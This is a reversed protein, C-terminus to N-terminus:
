VYLTSPTLNWWDAAMDRTVGRMNTYRTYLLHTDRHGMNLQLQALTGCKAKLYYTAYSHRLCDNQWTKGHWGAAKRLLNLRRVLNRPPTILADPAAEAPRYADLWALLTPHLDIHRTGGTKSNHARVSLVNEEMDLDNWKLRSCELPRVGAFACIALYPVLDAANEAATRLLRRLDAPPLATIERERVHQQELPSVPNEMVIVRRTIFYQFIAHLIRRGSNWCSPSSAWATDLALQIDHTTLTDMPVDGFGPNRSFITHCAGTRTRTTHASQHSKAANITTLAARLTPAHSTEPSDGAGGTHLAHAYAMGNDHMLEMLRQVAACLSLGTGELLRCAAKADEAVDSPLVALPHVGEERVQARVAAAFAQAEARKAFRRYVRKGSDSLARPVVVLWPSKRHGKYTDKSVAIQVPPNYCRAVFHAVSENKALSM